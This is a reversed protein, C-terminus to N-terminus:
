PLLPPARAGSPPVPLPPSALPAPGAPSCAPLLAVAAGPGPASAMALHEAADHLACPEAHQHAVHELEHALATEQTAVFLVVLLCLLLCRGIMPSGPSRGAPPQSRLVTRPIQHV